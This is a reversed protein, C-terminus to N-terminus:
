GEGSLSEGLVRDLAAFARIVLSRFAESARTQHPRRFIGSRRSTIKTMRDPRYDIEERARDAWEMRLADGVWLPVPLKRCPRGPTVYVTCRLPDMVLNNLTMAVNLEVLADLIELRRIHRFFNWPHCCITADDVRESRFLM